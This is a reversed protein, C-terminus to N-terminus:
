RILRSRDASVACTCRNLYRTPVLSRRTHSLPHILLSFFFDRYPDRDFTYIVAALPAVLLRLLLHSPTCSRDRINLPSANPFPLVYSVSDHLLPDGLNWSQFHRRSPTPPTQFHDVNSKFSVPNGHDTCCSIMVMSLGLHEEWLMTFPWPGRM